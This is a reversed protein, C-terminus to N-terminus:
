SSFYIWLFLFICFCYMLYFNFNFSHIRGSYIYRNTSTSILPIYVDQTYTGTRVRDKNNKYVLKYDYTITYSQGPTFSGTITWDWRWHGKWNNDYRYVGAYEGDSYGNCSASGWSKSISKIQTDHGSTLDVDMYCVIQNYSASSYGWSTHWSDSGSASLLDDGISVGLLPGSASLLDDGISVGLLPEGIIIGREKLDEDTFIVNEDNNENNKNEGSASVMVAEDNSTINEVSTSEVATQQITVNTNSNSISIVDDTNNDAASVASLSILICM